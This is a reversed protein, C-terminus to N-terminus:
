DGQATVPPGTRIRFLRRSAPTRSGNTDARAAHPSRALTAHPSSPHTEATWWGCCSRSPADESPVALINGGGGSASRARWLTIAPAPNRAHLVAAAAERKRTPGLRNGTSNSVKQDTQHNAAAGVAGLWWGKWGLCAGRYRTGAGGGRRRRGEPGYCAMGAEIHARLLGISAAVPSHGGTPPSAGVTIAVRGNAAFGAPGVRGWQAMPDPRPNDCLVVALCFSSIKRM